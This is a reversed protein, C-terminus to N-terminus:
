WAEVPSRSRFVPQFAVQHNYHVREAIVFLRGWAPNGEAALCTQLVLGGENMYVQRFLTDGDLERGTELDIFRSYPDTPRTAKFRRQTKVQYHRTSGDGYAVRLHTGPVLRTFKDGVLDAHALLATTGYQYAMGFLTVAERARSVYGPQGAPQTRVTLTFLGEVSVTVPLTPSAAQAPTPIAMLALLFLAAVFRTVTAGM